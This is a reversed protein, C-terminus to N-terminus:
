QAVCRVALGHVKNNYNQTSFNGDYYVNLNYASTSSYAASSWFYGNYGRNYLTGNTWNYFGTAPISLPLQKVRNLSDRNNSSYGGTTGPFAYTTTILNRWSDKADTANSPLKWGKPCISDNVTGSATSYTGSGATAAYWNYYDGIYMSGRMTFTDGDKTTILKPQWTTDQTLNDGTQPLTANNGEADNVKGPMACNSNAHSSTAGDAKCAAPDSVTSTGTLYGLDNNYSRPFDSLANNAIYVGTSRDQQAGSTSSTNATLVGSEMHYRSGWYLNRGYYLRPQFQYNVSPDNIAFSGLTAYDPGPELTDTLGELNAYGHADKLTKDPIWEAATINTNDSTLRKSKDSTFDALNLDLNQVMWCNGDAFRRVLYTKYNTGTQGGSTVTERNDGLLFTGVGEAASEAAISSDAPITSESNVIAKADTIDTITSAAIAATETAPYVRADVGYTKGWTNTNKCINAEMEQMTTIYGLGGRTSTEKSQLGAYVVSPVIGTNTYHSVYDFHETGYKTVRVWFDYEGTVSSSTNALASNDGAIAIVDGGAVAQEESDIPYAGVNPMTCTITAAGNASTVASVGCQNYISADLGSVSYSNTAFTSHPVLYVKVDEAAITDNSSALDIKLTEVTGSTVFEVNRSMNTSATDLDTTSAMATYVIDNKYTGSMVDTDVMISYYVYFNSGGLFGSANNAKWIQQASNKTPVAAWKGGNYFGSGTGTRTLNDNASGALNGDYATYSTATAFAADAGTIPTNPVAYGWGTRTFSQASSFTAENAGDNIAEIKQDSDNADINLDNSSTDNTSLYVAYYKGSTVVRIMKRAVKQTGYNESGLTSTDRATPVVDGFEVNGHTALDPSEGGQTAEYDPDLTLSINEWSVDTTATTASAEAILYPVVTFALVFIAMGVVSAGLFRRFLIAEKVKTLSTGVTGKSKM